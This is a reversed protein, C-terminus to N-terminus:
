VNMVGLYGLWRILVAEDTEEDYKPVTFAVQDNEDVNHNKITKKLKNRM